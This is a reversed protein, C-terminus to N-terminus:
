VRKKEFFSTLVKCIRVEPTFYLYSFYRVHYNYVLKDHVDLLLKPLKVSAFRDFTCFVRTNHSKKLTKKDFKM